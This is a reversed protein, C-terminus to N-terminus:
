DSESTQAELRRPEVDAVRVETLLQLADIPGEGVPHQTSQSSPRESGTELSLLRLGIQIARVSDCDARREPWNKRQNCDQRNQALGGRRQEFADEGTFNERDNCCVCERSYNEIRSRPKVPTLSSSVLTAKPALFGRNQQRSACGFLPLWVCIGAEMKAIADANAKCARVDADQSDQNPVIKAEGREDPGLTITDRDRCISQLSGSALDSSTVDCTAQLQGLFLEKGKQVLGRCNM